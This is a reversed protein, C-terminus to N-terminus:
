VFVDYGNGIVNNISNYFQHCNVSLCSTKHLPKIFDDVYYRHVISFFVTVVGLLLTSMFLYFYYYFMTNINRANVFELLTTYSRFYIYVLLRYM